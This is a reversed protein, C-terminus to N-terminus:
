STYEPQYGQTYEAGGIIIKQSTNNPQFFEVLDLDVINDSYVIDVTYKGVTYYIHAYQLKGSEDRSVQIDSLACYSDTKGNESNRIKLYLHPCYMNTKICEALIELDLSFGSESVACGFIKAFFLHVNILNADSDNGFVKNLELEEGTNFSATSLYTSLIDWSYDYPQSLSGNCNACISKNFKLAEAKLSGIPRKNEGNSRHYIPSTQSPKGSMSLKLDSKKIRHEGSNAQANCIWCKTM